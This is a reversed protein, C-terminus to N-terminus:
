NSKTMGYIRNLYLIHNSCVIRNSNLNEVQAVKKPYKKMTLIGDLAAFLAGQLVRKEPYYEPVIANVIQLGVKLRGIARVNEDVLSLMDAYLRNVEIMLFNRPHLRLKLDNARRCRQAQSPSFVTVPKNFLSLMSPISEEGSILIKNHSLSSTDTHGFLPDYELLWKEISTIISSPATSSQGVEYLQQISKWTSSALELTRDFELHDAGITSLKMSCRLCVVEDQASSEQSIIVGSPGVPLLPFYGCTFVTPM